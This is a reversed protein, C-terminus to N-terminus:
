TKDAKKNNNGTEEDPMWYLFPQMLPYWVHGPLFKTLVDAPNDKGSIHVFKLIGAAVAERVRHYSIANHQKKLNHEPINSSTVVALNDGFMYAPGDIPVGLMRFTYRMEGIKDTAIRAAMFESGYTSSEVSNQKKCYWDVPTKNLMTIIGTVARGTVQNHYLNADVFMSLTMSKGKPAPMNDPVDEQVNGYVYTWDYTHDPYASYDPKDTRFKISCSKYTRLFRFIRVLRELHGKRPAARYSSMTSVAMMIDMRGLTVAWQLMGLLSNYTQMASKGLLETMDLEPHDNPDLPAHIGKAPKFGMIQEFVELIRLVYTSSGMVFVDEPSKVHAMDAGLYYEPRGVGKLTYTQKLQSILHMPDKSMVIIDDVWVCAYEYHDGMDKMWIAPDAYSSVFGADCLSDAFKEAWRAGSSRLGYLAKSVILNHGELDGFEPGAIVYLKEKTYAELYANGVDAACMELGNLKALLLCIRINRLSAIGSYANDYTPPTVHGGAVLRAKRRLDYKVDFVLHHVKIKNYHPPPRTRGFYDKFTHYDQIQKIEKAIADQGLCNGNAKDLQVAEAYTQPVQVGFKFKPGSTQKQANHIQKFMRIYRGPNAHRKLRKWQPVGLLNHEKAYAALTVPDDKIMVSLPEWTTEGTTWEVLVEYKNDAGKHHDLVTEFTWVQNEADDDSPSTVAEMADMLENYTMIEEHEGDGLAVVFKNDDTIDVVTAKYPSDQHTHLFNHGLLESPDISPLRRREIPVVDSEATIVDPRDTSREDIKPVTARLNPHIPHNAARLVSRAIVQMDITLVHYTLADGVHEAVGLFHGLREKSKPYSANKDYYLVPQYFHFQLLASIDPTVGTAVEIPTKHHLAPVSLRNLLYATYSVAWFWLCSPANTRDMIANSTSKIDQIRREAANQNPHMPETQMDKINYMRLIDVVAHSTESKANDSMLASPAGWQRIFDELTSSMESETKMGYVATLRSTKGVYLQACTIGGLGKESSFFTDTAM